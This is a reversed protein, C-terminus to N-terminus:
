GLDEECLANLMDEIVKIDDRSAATLGDRQWCKLCKSAEIADGGMHCWVDTLTTKAASSVHDPEASM